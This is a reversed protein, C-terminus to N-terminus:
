ESRGDTPKRSRRGTCTSARLRNAAGPVAAARRVHHCPLRGGPRDGCVADGRRSPAARAPPHRALRRPSCARHAPQALRLGYREALFVFADLFGRPLAVDDDVVLLWDRGQVPSGALMKNLNQFRGRGGVERQVFEVDHRPVCCSSGPVPWCIPCQDPREIGLVLIRRRPWARAARHLRLPELRALRVADQITDRAIARTRARVGLVQGSTGSLFDDSTEASVGGRERGGGRPRWGASRTPAALVVGIACRRRVIHWLCGALTRVEAARSGRAGSGKRLDNRRAARGQPRLRRRALRAGM